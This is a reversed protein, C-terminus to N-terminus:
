PHVEEGRRPVVVNERVIVAADVRLQPERGMSEGLEGYIRVADRPSACWGALVGDIRRPAAGGVSQVRYSAIAQAGDVLPALRKDHLWGPPLGELFVVLKCDGAAPREDADRQTVLFCRRRADLLLQEDPIVKERYWSSAMADAGHQESAFGVESFIDFGPDGLLPAGDAGLVAHNQVYSSVGPVRSFLQAHVGRWHAQAQAPSLGPARPSLGLRVLGM